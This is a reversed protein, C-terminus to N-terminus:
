DEVPVAVEVMWETWDGDAMEMYQNAGVLRGGLKPSACPLDNKVPLSNAVLWCVTIIWNVEHCKTWGSSIVLGGVTEWDGNNKAWCPYLTALTGGAVRRRWNQRWFQWHEGM